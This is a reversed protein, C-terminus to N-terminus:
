KNYFKIYTFNILLSILILAIKLVKFSDATNWDYPNGYCFITLLDGLGWFLSCFPYYVLGKLYNEKKSFYYLIVFIFVFIIFIDVLNELISTLYSSKKRIIFETIALIIIGLNIIFNITFHFCNFEQVIFNQESIKEYPQSETKTETDMNYNQSMEGETNMKESSM